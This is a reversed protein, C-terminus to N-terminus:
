ELMYKTQVAERLESVAKVTMGVLLLGCAISLLSMWGLNKNLFAYFAGYLSGFTDALACIVAFDVLVTFNKNLQKQVALIQKKEGESEIEKGLVYGTHDKVVERLAKAMAFYILVLLIGEVAVAIVTILYVNFAEANKNIANYYYNEAFYYRIFDEFVTAVTFLSFVTVLFAKKIKAARSFYILAIGLLVVVLIDPLINIGDMNFDISFISALVMFVTAIKVDKIVFAGNKTIKRQSYEKNLSEIFDNDKSM